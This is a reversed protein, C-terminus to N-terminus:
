RTEAQTSNSFVPTETPSGGEVCQQSRLGGPEQTLLAASSRALWQPLAFVLVVCLVLGIYLPGRTDLWDNFRDFRSRPDLLHHRFVGSQYESRPYRQKFTM